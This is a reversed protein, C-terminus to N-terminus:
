RDRYIFIRRQDLTFRPETDIIFGADTTAGYKVNFLGDSRIILNRNSRICFFTDIATDEFGILNYHTLIIEKSKIVAELVSGIRYSYEFYHSIEAESIYQGLLSFNYLIISNIYPVSNPASKKRVVISVINSDFNIRYLPEYSDFHINHSQDCTPNRQCFYRKVIEKSINNNSTFYNEDRESPVTVIFSDQRVVHFCSIFKDFSDVNSCQAILFSPLFIFAVVAYPAKVNLKCPKIPLM